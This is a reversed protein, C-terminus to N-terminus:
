PVHGNGGAKERRRQAKKLKPLIAEFFEVLGELRESESRIGLLAQKFDLDIPLAGALQYSLFSAEADVEDAGGLIESIEEYLELARKRVEPTSEAEEAPEDDVFMVQGQLFERERDVELVEFRRRGVAVIEMRGDPHRKTVEVIEATCGLEAIGEQEKARVVGFPKKQKLCEGIMAKYRPEFINLPMSVGPLLVADLPFLPLLLRM